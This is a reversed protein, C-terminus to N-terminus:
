EIEVASGTGVEGGDLAELYVGCFMHGYTKELIKPVNLDRACTAPTV